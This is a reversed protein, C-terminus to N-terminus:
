LISNGFLEAFVGQRWTCSCCLGIGTTVHRVGADSCARMAQAPSKGARWETKADVRATDTPLFVGSSNM